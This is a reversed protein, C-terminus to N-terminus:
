ASGSFFSELVVVTRLVEPNIRQFFLILALKSFAPASVKTVKIILLGPWYAAM